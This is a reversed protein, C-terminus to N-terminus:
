MVEIECLILRLHAFVRFLMEVFVSCAVNDEFPFM